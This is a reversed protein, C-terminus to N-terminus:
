RCCDCDGRSNRDYIQGVRHGFGLFARLGAEIILMLIAFSLVRELTRWVGARWRNPAAADAPQTNTTTIDAM